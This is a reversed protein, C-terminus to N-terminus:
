RSIQLGRLAEVAAQVARSQRRQQRLAAVRQRAQHVNSPPVPITSGPALACQLRIFEARFSDGNEELWDALVLRVFEDDPQDRAARLLVLLQPHPPPQSM